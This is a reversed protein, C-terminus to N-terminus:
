LPDTYPTHNTLQVPQSGGRVAHPIGAMIFPARLLQMTLMPYRVSNDSARIGLIGLFCIERNENEEERLKQEM